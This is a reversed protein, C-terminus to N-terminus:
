KPSKLNIESLFPHKLQKYSSLEAEAAGIKLKAKLKLPVHNGDDSIWVEMANKSESFVDDTIDVTWHFAKYKLKESKELVAQGTYRLIINVNDKGLFVTLNYTQGPNLEAYNMNRIFLFINVIDFGRNNVSLTTDIRVEGNKIRKISVESFNKEHKRMVLEERFRTNGENVSRSLSIPIIDPRSAYSILTDRMKYIKDFFSNTKFSFTSKVRPRQNNEAFNIRYDASGAGMMLLGYKYRIHYTLVEGDQFPLSQARSETTVWFLGIALLVLWIAKSFDRCQIESIRIRNISM